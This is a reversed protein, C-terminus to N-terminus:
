SLDYPQGPASSCIEYKVSLNVTCLKVINNQTQPLRCIALISERHYLGILSNQEPQQGRRAAM